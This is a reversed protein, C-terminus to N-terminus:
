NKATENLEIPNTNAFTLMGKKGQLKETCYNFSFRYSKITILWSISLLIPRFIADPSKM